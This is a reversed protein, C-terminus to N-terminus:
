GEDSMLEGEGASLCLRVSLLLSLLLGGASHVAVHLHARARMRRGSYGGDGKTCPQNAADALCPVTCVCESFATAAGTSGSPEHGEPNIQPRCSQSPQQETMGCRVTMRSSCFIAMCVSM